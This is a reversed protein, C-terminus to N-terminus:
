DLERVTKFEYGNERWCDILDGLIDANTDSNPHLLIIAGNHTNDLIKKMAADRPPQNDNDWDAYAFSWFVTKYGMETAHKLNLESFSGEPPRYYRDLDYGTKSKCLEELGSLESYFETKDTCNAMNKHSCTHNCVAHGEEFMRKILGTEHTIPHSLVFFSAHVNKDRLTNLIRETNGNEYGFDFTLYLVKEGNEDGYRSDIWATNYKEIVSLRKDLVPQRNDAARKTYWSYAGEAYCLDASSIIITLSVIFATLIKYFKSKM